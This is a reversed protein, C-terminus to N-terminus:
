EVKGGRRGKTAGQKAKRLRSAYSEAEAEPAL